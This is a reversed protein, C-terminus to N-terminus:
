MFNVNVEVIYQHIFIFHKVYAEIFFLCFGAMEKKRKKEKRKKEISFLYNKSFHAPHFLAM